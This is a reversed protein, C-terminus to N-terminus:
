CLTQEYDFKTTCTITEGSTIPHPTGDTRNAKRFGGSHLGPQAGRAPAEKMPHMQGNPTMRRSGPPFKAAAQDEGEGQSTALCILDNTSPLFGVVGHPNDQDPDTPPQLSFRPASGSACGTSGFIMSIALVAL